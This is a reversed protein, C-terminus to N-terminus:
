HTREHVEGNAGPWVDRVGYLLKTSV